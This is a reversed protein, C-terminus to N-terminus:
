QLMVPYAVSPRSYYRNKYYDVYKSNQIEVQNALIFNNSFKNIMLKINPGVLRKIYDAVATQHLFTHIKHRTTTNDNSRTRQTYSNRYHDHVTYIEHSENPHTNFPMGTEVEHLFQKIATCACKAVVVCALKHDDLIIQM